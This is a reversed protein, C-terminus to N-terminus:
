PAPAAPAVPYPAETVSWVASAHRPERRALRLGGAVRDRHRGLWTGLAGASRLTGESTRRWAALHPAPVAGEAGNAADVVEAATMERGGFDARWARLFTALDETEKDPMWGSGLFGPVGATSLIGGMVAAWEEFGGLTRDTARPMGATVWAGVISLAARVLDARHDEAWSPLPHRWPQGQRPGVSPGTRQGPREIRADIRITVTRGQTDHGVTLNNGTMVWVQRVSMGEFRRATLVADFLPSRLNGTVNDFFAVDAGERIVRRLDKESFKIPEGVNGMAPVLACTALLTKGTRSEPAHFLHLPTPGQILDRVFPLLLLALVHARDAEDVFPFDGLLEETLLRVADAAGLYELPDGADDLLMTNVLDHDAVDGLDPPMMLFTRSEQHYYRQGRILRGGRVFFPATAVRDLKPFPAYEGRELIAKVLAGPPDVRQLGEREVLGPKLWHAIEALRAKVDAATADIREGNRVVVLAGRGGDFLVPVAANMEHNGVATLVQGAWATPAMEVEVPFTGSWWFVPLGPVVPAKLARAIDRATCGWPCRALLMTPSEEQIEIEGRRDCVPCKNAELRGYLVEGLEVIDAPTTADVAPSLEALDEDEDTWEEDDAVAAPYPEVDPEGPAALAKAPPPTDDPCVTVGPVDPAHLASAMAAGSCGNECYGVVRDADDDDIDFIAGPTACVPCKRGRKRIRENLLDALDEAPNM